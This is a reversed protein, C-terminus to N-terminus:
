FLWLIAGLVASLVSVVAFLATMGLAVMGTRDSRTVGTIFWSFRALLASIIAAVFCATMM